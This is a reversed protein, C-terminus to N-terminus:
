TLYSAALASHSHWSLPQAHPVAECSTDSNCLDDHLTSGRGILRCYWQCIAASPAADVQETCESHLTLKVAQLRAPGSSYFDRLPHWYWHDGTGLSAWHVLGESPQASLALCM